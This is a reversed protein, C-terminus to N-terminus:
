SIFESLLENSLLFGGPTLRIKRGGRILLKEEIYVDILSEKGETPDFGWKEAFKQLDVGETKRMSMFFEEEALKQPEAEAQAPPIRFDPSIVFDRYEEISQPHVWRANLSCSAASAGLGLWPMGSWYKLNHKSRYGARAFNSIEYQEYGYGSLVDIIKLYIKATLYDDPFKREDIGSFDTGDKIELLYASVHQPALEKIARLEKEVADPTDNQIGAIFDLSINEFGAERANEYGEFTEKVSHARGLLKLKADDFRQAGISLRNVGVSRLERLYGTELHEPNAELTIELDKWELGFDFLCRISTLVEDVAFVPMLSPTGGGLYITDVSPFLDPFYESTREIEALLLEHYLPKLSPDTLSFFSCYPCRKTCFPFHIYIGTGPYAAEKTEAANSPSSKNM